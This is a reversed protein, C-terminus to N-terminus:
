IMLKSYQFALAQLPPEQRAWSQIAIQRVDELMTDEKINNSTFM